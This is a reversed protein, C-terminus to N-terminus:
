LTARPRMAGQTDAWEGWAAKSNEVDTEGDLSFPLELRIATAAWLRYFRGPAVPQRHLRLLRQWDLHDAM